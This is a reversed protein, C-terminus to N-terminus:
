YQMSVVVRAARPSGPTINTNSHAFQLYHEDLLNEVNLQAHWRENMRFYVAADVRTFSPLTVNNEPTALNETAALIDDRYVMGLGFGWTSSVDYRNWMSFTTKPLSALRAGKLVTASQDSIIEADQFASAAIISWKETVNGSLGLEVGKDRQGDTLILTGAPPGDPTGALPDTIAVNTREIEFLAATFALNANADWKLGVEYNTFEEPDLSENTM